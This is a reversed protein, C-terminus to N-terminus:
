VREEGDREGYEAQRVVLGLHLLWARVSAVLWLSYTCHPSVAEVRVEPRIICSVVM